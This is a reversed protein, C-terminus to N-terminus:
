TRASLVPVDYDDLKLDATVLTLGECLAQAVLLRDFPDKHHPPLAGAALGHRITIPLATFGDSAIRHELDEPARLKGIAQKIGIETASVASVLVESHPTAIARRTGPGLQPLDFLWWLLANTDLLLRM